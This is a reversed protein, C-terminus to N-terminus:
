LQKSARGKNPVPKKQLNSAHIFFMSRMGNALTASLRNDLGVKTDDLHGCLM